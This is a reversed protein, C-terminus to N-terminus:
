WWSPCSCPGGWEVLFAFLSVIFICYFSTLRSVPRLYGISLPSPSSGACCFGYVWSERSFVNGLTVVEPATRRHLIEVRAIVEMSHIEVLAPQGESPLNPIVKILQGGPGFRACVHPVSFKEPSTPRSPAVNLCLSFSVM